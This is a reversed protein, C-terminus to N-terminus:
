VPFILKRAGAPDKQETLGQGALLLASPGAFGDPYWALINKLASAAAISDQENLAARASQYLAREIFHHEKAEPLSAYKEAISNYNTVASAFDKAAFQTDAWKFRAKPRSKLIRCGSSLPASHTRAKPLRERAGYAGDKTWCRKAL